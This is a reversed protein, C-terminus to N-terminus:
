KKAAEDICSQCRKQAPARPIFEKGCIKCVQATFKGEKEDELEQKEKEIKALVERVIEEIEKRSISKDQKVFDQDEKLGPMLNQSACLSCRGHEDLDTKRFEAKCVSCGADDIIKKADVM